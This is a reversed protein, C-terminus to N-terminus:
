LTEEVEGAAREISGGKLPISPPKVADEDLVAALYDLLTGKWGGKILRCVPGRGDAPQKESKGDPSKGVQEDQGCSHRMNPWLQSAYKAVVTAM